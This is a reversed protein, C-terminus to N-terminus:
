VADGDDGGTRLPALAEAGFRAVNDLFAGLSPAPLHLSLWTVGLKELSQAEEILAAPDFDDRWSPHSFPTFCIDLPTTRGAAACEERCRDLLVALDEPTRLAETRVAAAMRRPAPFPIWGDAAVARRRAAASNGGVWVPPHPISAPLPRTFNGVATWGDGTAHIEEGSWCRKILDLTEDLRRGRGAFPVGLAEFEEKLYGAGVGFILRGGSLVDLTVAGKATIFPSRYAPIYVNTHLRLRTTAAAAFSLTVFPDLTHHGGTNIWSATPFPHDTVSCADFGAREIATAMTAVAVPNHFERRDDARDIPLALSFRVM